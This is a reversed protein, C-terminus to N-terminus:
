FLVHKGRDIRRRLNLLYQVYIFTHPFSPGAWNLMPLVFPFVANGSFSQIALRTFAVEYAAVTAALIIEAAHPHVLRKLLLSSITRSVLNSSASASSASSAESSSTSSSAGSEVGGSANKPKDFNASAAAPFFTLIFVVLIQLAMTTVAVSVSLSLADDGTGESGAIKADRRQYALLTGLDVVVLPVFVALKLPVGSLPGFFRGLRM